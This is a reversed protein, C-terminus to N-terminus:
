RSEQPFQQFRIQDTIRHAAPDPSDTSSEAPRETSSVTSSECGPGAGELARRLRRRARALRMAFTSRACGLVQAAQEATLGDFAVLALSERDVERLTRWARALDVRLIATASDEDPEPRHELIMRVDLSHRRGTARAHNAMTNRAVEFLWPRADDPIDGLRRWAVLFVASVVDEAEDLPVRRQVFRLLDPHTAAHLDRFRAEDSRLPPAIDTTM